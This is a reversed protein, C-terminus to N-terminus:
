PLILASYIHIFYVVYKRLNRWTPPPTASLVPSTRVTNSMENMERETHRKEIHKLLEVARKLQPKSSFLSNIEKHFIEVQNNTQDIDETRPKRYLAWVDPGFRAQCNKDGFWTTIMYNIFKEGAVAKWKVNFSEVAKSFEENNKFAYSALHKVDDRLNCLINADNKLVHDRPVSRKIWKGIAQLQHFLCGVIEAEPWHSKIANHMAKEFDVSIYLKKIQDLEQVLYKITWWLYWYNMEEKGKKNLGDGRLFAFLCPIARAHGKKRLMLTVMQDIGEPCFDFTGDIYLQDESSIDKLKNIQYNSAWILQFFPYTSVWRIFQEERGRTKTTSLDSREHLDQINFIRETRYKQQAQQVDKMQIKYRPDDKKDEPLKNNLIDAINNSSKIHTNAKVFEYLEKIREQNLPPKTQNEIHKVNHNVHEGAHVYVNYKQYYRIRAKCQRSRRKNCYYVSAQSSVEEKANYYYDHWILQKQKSQVKQVEGFPIISEDPKLKINNNFETLQQNIPSEDKIVQTELSQDTDNDEDEIHDNTAVELPQQTVISNRDSNILFSLSDTEPDLEILDDHEITTPQVTPLQTMENQKKSNEKEM